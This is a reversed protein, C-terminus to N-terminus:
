CTFAAYCCVCVVITLCYLTNNYYQVALALM